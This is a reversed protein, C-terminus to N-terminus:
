AKGKHQALFATSYEILSSGRAKSMLATSERLNIFEGELGPVVEAGEKTATAHGSILLVKWQAATREKGAWCLGSKALNSCIAHFKANQEGNRSPESVAVGYGDPANAVASMARRRAEPHALIFTQKM